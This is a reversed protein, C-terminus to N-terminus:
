FCKLFSFNSLKITRKFSRLSSFDVTETSLSNWVNIVRQSFFFKRTNVHSHEKFLKFPYGRTTVATSHQFFDDFNVDVLGFVIKYCMILDIHLCQLELSPLKLQNLRTTYSYTKLGPLRKTFRRQVREIEEIDHVTQPSWIVSNYEVIPRVYVIFARVLLAVDRSAFSRLITNARQHAKAVMQGIHAAPKLDNLVVVGLDRCSM